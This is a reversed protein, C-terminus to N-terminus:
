KSLVVPVSLGYIRALSAYVVGPLTGLFKVSSHIRENGIRGAYSLIGNEGISFTFQLNPGKYWEFSIEGDPDPTLEPAPIDRPLQLATSKAIDIAKQTIPRAHYGDWGSESCDERISRLESAIAQIPQEYVWSGRVYDKFVYRVNFTRYFETYCTANLYDGPQALAIAM